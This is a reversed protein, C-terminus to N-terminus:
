ATILESFVIEEAQAKLMNMHAVWELQRTAKDPAPNAELLQATLLEMRQESTEQIEHLHEFLKGNLILSNLLLPNNEKLFTRRIRGYKGLSQSKEIELAPIYTEGVLIYDLGNKDDHIQSPLTNM